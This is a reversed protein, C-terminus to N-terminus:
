VITRKVGCMIMQMKAQTQMRKKLPQMHDLMVYINQASVRIAERDVTDKNDQVGFKAVARLSAQDESDLYSYALPLWAEGGWVYRGMNAFEGDIVKEKFTHAAAICLMEYKNPKFIAISILVQAWAGNSMLKGRHTDTCVREVYSEVFAQARAGIHDVFEADRKSLLKYM